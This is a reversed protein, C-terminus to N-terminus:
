KKKRGDAALQSEIKQVHDPEATAVLLFGISFHSVWKMEKREALM